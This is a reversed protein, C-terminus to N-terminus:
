LVDFTLSNYHKLYSILNFLRDGVEFWGMYYNCKKCLLGRVEGTAHNHDFCLRKTVARRGCIACRGAQQVLLQDYLKVTANTMGQEAWSKERAKVKAPRYGRKRKVAM